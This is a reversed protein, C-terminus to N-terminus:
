QLLLQPGQPKSLREPFGARQYARLGAECVGKLQLREKV